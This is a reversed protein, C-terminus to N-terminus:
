TGDAMRARVLRVFDPDASSISDVVEGLDCRELRVTAGSGGVSVPHWGGGAEEWRRLRGLASSPATVEVSLAPIEAAFLELSELVHEHRVGPGGFQIAIGDRDSFGRLWDRM